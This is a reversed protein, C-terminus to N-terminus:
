TRPLIVRFTTGQEANSEVRASGGHANAIERVIFLGLGVSRGSVPANDGRTM